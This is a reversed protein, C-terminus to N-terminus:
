WASIEAVFKRNKVIQAPTPLYPNDIMNTDTVISMYARYHSTPDQHDVIKGAAAKNSAIYQKQADNLQRFYIDYYVCGMEKNDGFRNDFEYIEIAKM